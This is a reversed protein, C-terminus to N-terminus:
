GTMGRGDEGKLGGLDDPPWPPPEHEAQALGRLARRRAHEASTLQAKVRAERRGEVSLEADCGEVRCAKTESIFSALSEGKFPNTSENRWKVRAGRRGCSVISGRGCQSPVSKDQLLAFRPTKGRLLHSENSRLTKTGASWTQWKTNIRGRRRRGPFSKSQPQWLL